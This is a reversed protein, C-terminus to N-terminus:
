QVRRSTSPLNMLSCVVPKVSSLAKRAPSSHGTNRFFGRTQGTSAKSCNARRTLALRALADNDPAHPDGLVLMASVTHTGNAIEAQSTAPDPAVSAAEHRNAPM